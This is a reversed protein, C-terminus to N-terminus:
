VIGTLKKKWRRACNKKEDGRRKGERCKSGTRRLKGRAAEIFLYRM